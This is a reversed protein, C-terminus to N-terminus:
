RVRTGKTFRQEPGAPAYIQIAVFRTTAEAAHKAGRPIHLTDGSKVAHKAGDFTVFGSGELVVLTESAEHTHEPVKAGANLELRSTAIDAQVLLTVVGADAALAYRPAEDQHVVPEAALLLTLVLSIM